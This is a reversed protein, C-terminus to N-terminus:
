LALAKKRPVTPEILISGAPITALMLIQYAAEISRYMELSFNLFQKEEIKCPSTIIGRRVRGLFIL